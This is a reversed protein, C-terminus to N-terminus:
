AGTCRTRGAPRRRGPRWWGAGARGARRALRAGIVSCGSPTGATSAGPLDRGAGAAVVEPGPEGVDVEAAPQVRGIRSAPVMSVRRPRWRGPGAGAAVGRVHGVPHDVLRAAVAAFRDARGAGLDVLAVGVLEDPGAQDAAFADGVRTAVWGAQEGGEGGGAEARHVGPGDRLVGAGVPAAAVAPGPGAVGAAVVSRGARAAPPTSRGGRADVVVTRPTAATGPSSRGRGGPRTSCGPRRVTAACWWRWRGRVMRRVALRRPM